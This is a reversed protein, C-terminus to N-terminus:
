IILVQLCILLMSPFCPNPFSFFFHRCFVAGRLILNRPFGEFHLLITM